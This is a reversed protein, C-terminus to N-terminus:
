DSHADNLWSQKVRRVEHSTSKMKVNNDRQNIIWIICNIVRLWISKILTSLNVKQQSDAWSECDESAYETMIMMRLYLIMQQM